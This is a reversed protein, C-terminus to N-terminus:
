WIVGGEGERVSDLLRNKIDTDRKSDQMYPWWWWKEVNWIYANIYQILTERESESWETYYAGTEDVENSSIWVQEKLYNLLIGNHIHVMVKKDM